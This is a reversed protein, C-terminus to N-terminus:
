IELNVYLNSTEYRWQVFSGEFEEEAHGTTKLDIPYIIKNEHDVILEDFMCRVPIGEFESKFKLQFVKEINDDFSPSFFFSTVENARLENVCKIVDDYDSQSLIRKDQALTLLSYYEDCNERVQKIRYNAYSAGKYYGFNLATDSIIDDPIQELRRYTNGYNNHLDKTIQILSESIQPFDCVIFRENFETDGDTLLTDVASGFLLSPTDIKEFLSGLKRWGEREFRSLTSYSIAKDARYTEEDVNWAIENISKM